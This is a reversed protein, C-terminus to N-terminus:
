TGTVEECICPELSACVTDKALEEFLLKFYGCMFRGVSSTAYVANEMSMLVCTWTLLAIGIPIQVGNKVFWCDNAEDLCKRHKASCVPENAFEFSGV